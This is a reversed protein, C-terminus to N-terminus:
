YANLVASFQASEHVVWQEYTQILIKNSNKM